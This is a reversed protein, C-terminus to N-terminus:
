PAVAPLDLAFRTHEGPVSEVSLEGGHDKAIGHSVALGLGTGQDRGKTTFFPDFIRPLVEAPIGVGRDEVVIRVWPRGAVTRPEARLEILKREDYGQYRENLADRANTVLNMLIQQIQQVRCRVPPLDAPIAVRMQIHDKRMVARILSLTADVLEAVNAEELRQEREQRSFALLNRVITAVRNSENTIEAAFERVIGPDNANDGILEAYNLIGQVPNNIEHAVGSALTGVSELRQQQRLQAELAQRAADAQKRETVDTAVVVAHRAGIDVDIPALRATYWRPETGARVVEIEIERQIGEHLVTHVAARWDEASTSSLFMELLRGSSEGGSDMLSNRNVFEVEGRENLLAIVDPAGDVLSRWRAESRRLATYLRANDLAGAAQGTILALAELREPTFCYASLRNELILAGLRRKGKVIPMGLLSQVGTQLVYEDGSFRPDVRADDLVLSQETRVVFNALSTPCLEEADRLRVPPEFSLGRGDVRAEAVVGLNGDRDLLLVGRDAGANTIAAHLVRTVVEDLRLDESMVRVSELVSAFDLSEAHTVSSRLMLNSAAPEVVLGGAPSRRTPRLGSRGVGVRSGSAGPGLEHRGVALEGFREPASARLQDLKAGAGWATYAAWAQEYAGNAFAHLGEREALAALREAALGEVWRCGQAQAHVRAREIRRMGADVKGRTAAELGLALDLYHAYNESSGAAWRRVIAVGKRLAAEVERPVVQRELMLTTATVVTTLAARPVTWSGLMVREIDDIVRLCLGMAEDTEGMLMRLQARNVIAAYISIRSGGRAEVREPDIADVVDPVEEAAEPDPGALLSSFRRVMWAVLVMEQSGWRGIDDELRRSLREVVRLHTGVEYHMSLSLAGMYGAYEFDGAELASVYADDIRALPQSFPRGLHWVFLYAASEVRALATTNPVREALAIGQECLQLADDIKRMGPGIGIALQGLALPATPHFGHRLFLTVHLGTLVVFLNPNIVYAANKLATLIEMIAGVGEDTCDPMTQLEEFGYRRLAWWARLLSAGVRLRGPEPDLVIGCRALAEIGLAVARGAEDTLSLLRIRRAAVRGYYGPDLRWGLLEDFALRAADNRASMALAQARAFHLAVVLAYHPAQDGRAAVDETLEALLGIGAELYRLALDFAATDLARTGAQLNLQALELRAELPSESAAEDLSADLHDAIEFMRDSPDEGSTALLHRGYIRHLRRREPEDLLALAADKIRDHAFCYERGVAALLGTEVLAYLTPALAARPQECVIELAAVDFRAGVCAARALLERAAQPVAALKATMVSLVDDPITAAAVAAEDWVWGREGARLLGQNSLHTLFQRVFLPNNDTKRGVIQALSRVEARPRALTDTLLEEIAAETLPRLRTIRVRHHDALADILARLPDGDDLEPEEAGGERLGGLILLAGRRGGDILARLLALSSRDALHLDDLVIVLPVDDACFASLFRAVALHLRNRAEHPELEPLPPQAGLVLELKPVLECVVGAVGGLAAELRVQWGQLRAESETLIQEVLGTFAEVFGVYPLERNPYFKGRALYGGFGAVPGEFDALLSSKGIGPPGALLMVRGSNSRMTRELEDVLEHREQMRGYLQHPLQLSRPFDERGLPLDRGDEGLEVLDRLKRLDAALGAATQYRHEPAKELLKMVLRSLGEPLEARRARPAEPTRALHAHILELPAAHEFPRRGTLLEYFTVGLSYLDSRYDVARGTRGTQEPSIYPLTGELVTPDYIRRRESELLVSIGFDALCVRGTDPELLVNTPKIDRHIIKRAHVRGLVDAIQIAISFFRELELPRRQTYEALDLGPVRELLLVLQDGVRQLGLAKVVGDVDLAEILAFEHEVRAEVDDGDLEYVKAVTAVGDAERVAEYVRSNGSSRLLRATRFGNLPVGM